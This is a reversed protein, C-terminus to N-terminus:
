FRPQLKRLPRFNWKTGYKRFIFIINDIVKTSAPVCKLPTALVIQSSSFIGLLATILMKDQTQERYIQNRFLFKSIEFDSIRHCKPQNAWTLLIPTVYSFKLETSSTLDTWTDLTLTKASKSSLVLLSNASIQQFLWPLSANVAYDSVM